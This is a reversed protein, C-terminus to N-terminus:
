SAIRSIFSYFVVYHFLIILSISKISATLKMISLSTLSFHCHIEHRRHNDPLLNLSMSESILFFQDQPWFQFQSDIKNHVLRFFVKAKTLLRGSAAKVSSSSSSFILLFSFFYIRRQSQRHPNKEKSRTKQLCLQSTTM